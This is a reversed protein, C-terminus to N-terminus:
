DAFTVVSRLVEGRELAAYADNIQELPYSRTILEDLKLTGARYLEVLRAIDVRPDGSGYLSGVITHEEYVMSTGPLKFESDKPAIGVIVLAGLRALSDYAQRTVPPAGVVDFAVDVGAGSTIERVRAAVDNDTGTSADVAHTAGFRTAERLKAAHVDVAVVVRAGALRAAQVVNLGVGGAGGFVAVSDGPQVKAANNVAGFGTVVACGLLAAVNMPVDRSIRLLAGAPVVTYQSFTSVGAYYLMPRRGIAFRTTGDALLGTNRTKTGALCLAPRGRACYACTGCSVRWLLVVHDGVNVSTMGDGVEAVVGAGEHGLVAPLPAVLEGRMVHLDSHCVGAAGMAVLVEGARPPAVDLDVVELRGPAEFLVAAQSKPM